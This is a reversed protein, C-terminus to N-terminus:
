EAASSGTFRSYLNDSGFISNDADLYDDIRGQVDAVEAGREGQPRRQWSQGLLGHPRVTDVLERWSSISVQALNLFGDSSDILLTFVGHQVTLHHRGQLRVTLERGEHSIPQLQGAAQQARLADMLEVGDLQM